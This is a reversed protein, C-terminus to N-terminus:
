KKIAEFGVLLWVEDAIAEPMFKMGFDGRKITFNAEFGARTGGFPDKGAGVRTLKVTLPKTVGHLTLDGTVELTKADVSKVTKSVFKIAPFEKANFFDTGKLHQDRKANATDISEAKVEINFTTNEPKEDDLVVAGSIDNFRGYSFGIGLHKIRFFVSSHVGDVQYNDAATAPAAAFTVSVALCALTTRLKM